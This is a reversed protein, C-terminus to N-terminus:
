GQLCFIDIQLFFNNKFSILKTFHIYYLVCIKVVFPLFNEDLQPHNAPLYPKRSGPMTTTTTTTFIPTLTDVVEKSRSDITDLVAPYSAVVEVEPESVVQVM